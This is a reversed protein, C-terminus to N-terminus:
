CYKFLLCNWYDATTELANYWPPAGILGPIWAFGNPTAIEFSPNPVLNVQAKTFLPLYCFIALIYRMIYINLTPLM